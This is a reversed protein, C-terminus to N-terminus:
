EVEFFSDIDIGKAEFLDCIMEYAHALDRLYKDGKQNRFKDYAKEVEDHIMGIAHGEDLSLEHKAFFKEM